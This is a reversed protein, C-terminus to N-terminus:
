VICHIPKNPTSRITCVPYTKPTPKPECEYCATIKPIHVTVQGLKGQTGADIMPIRSAVCLRNVYRRAELNDLANLVLSFQSFFETGYETINAKIGTLHLKPRIEILTAVAVEAKSLGVHKLRFLFQRNLNSKDITDVDIVTIYDLGVMVLNKLLECGIGGAGVVLIQQTEM